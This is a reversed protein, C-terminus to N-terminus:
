PALASSRFLTLDWADLSVDHRLIYEDGAEDRVKFYRHDFAPWRDLIAAVQIRRPGLALSKPVPEGSQEIECTVDVRV